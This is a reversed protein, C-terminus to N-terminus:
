CIRLPNQPNLPYRLYFSQSTYIIPRTKYHKECCEIWEVISARLSDKGIKYGKTFKEIDLVPILDCDTPVCAKFNEFQDKASSSTTFFHYAGVPIKHEKAQKYYESFKADKITSGETAKCYIFSATV